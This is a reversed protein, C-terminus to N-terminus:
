AVLQLQAPHLPLARQLRLALLQFLSGRRQHQPEAPGPQHVPRVPQRRGGVLDPRDPFTYRAEADVVGSVGTRWDTSGDNATGPALVDGYFTSRLTAGFQDKSWDGQLTVKERPTGKEFRLTAQRAFLSQPTALTTTVPTKDVSFDNVNAALTLDFTGAQEDNIRYRAVVDIGKTSTDVGNIFFRAATTGYLALLAGIQAANPNSAGPANSVLESLM